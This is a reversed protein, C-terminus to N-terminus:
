KAWSAAFWHKSGEDYGTVCRTLRGDGTYQEWKDQYSDNDSRRTAVANTLGSKEYWIASFRTQGDHHYANIYVQEWGKKSMDDFLDQYEQQSLYSKLVCGGVNRKEYFASYYRKGGVSVVSVNVPVYGKGTLEEFQKQHAEPSQAHYAPQAINNNPKLIFIAAFKLKGADLYNDLQQLRYGKKGVWEDYEQQYKEKSMDHRATVKYGDDNYRFITNFYTKGSVDYADVWVPYYGSNWIKTFEEQYKNEAIGHRAIEPKGGPYWSPKDGPWIIAGGSEIYPLGTKNMKVWDAGPDPTKMKEPSILWANTFQLPFVVAPDEINAAIADIHLHTGATATSGVRALWDGKKVKAGIKMFEKNLSFQKLHYYRIIENGCKIHFTNGGGDTDVGPENDKIKDNFHVVEGDAVAYVKRGFCRFDENKSGNKKPFKTSWKKENEEWGIMVIDYAFVQSGGGHAARGYWYENINLDSEKAPFAYSTANVHAKLTKNFVVPENYGEFYLRISISSPFPFSVPIVKGLENYARSNQFVGTKGAAITEKTGDKNPPFPFVKSTGGNNFQYEVKTLTVSKSENNKVKCWVSLLASISGAGNPPACTLYVIDGNANRPQVEVLTINPSAPTKNVSVPQHNSGPYIIGMVLFVPLAFLPKM